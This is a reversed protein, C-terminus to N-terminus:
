WCSLSRRSWSSWMPALCSRGIMCEWRLADPGPHEPLKLPFEASHQDVVAKTFRSHCGAVHLAGPCGSLLQDPLNETAWRLKCINQELRSVEHFMVLSPCRFVLRSVNLSPLLAKLQVMKDAIEQLVMEYKQNCGVLVHWATCAHWSIWTIGGVKM